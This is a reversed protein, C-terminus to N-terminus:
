YRILCFIYCRNPKYIYYSCIRSNKKTSMITSQLSFKSKKQKWLRSLNPFEDCSPNWAIQTHKASFITPPFIFSFKSIAEISPCWFFSFTQSETTNTTLAGNHDTQLHVSDIVNLGNQLHIFHIYKLKIHPAKTTNTFFVHKLLFSPPFIVLICFLQSALLVSPCRKKTTTIKKELFHHSNLEM